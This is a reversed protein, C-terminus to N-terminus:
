HKSFIHSDLSYHGVRDILQKTANTYGVAMIHIGKCGRTRKLEKIFDTFYEVNLEDTKRKREEKDQVSEKLLKM